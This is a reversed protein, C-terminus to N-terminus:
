PATSPRRETLEIRTGWPDSFFVSKIRLEPIATPASEFTLAKVAATYNELNEVEFGMHDVARGKTPGATTGATIFDLRIGLTPYGFRESYWRRALTADPVLFHIHDAAVEAGIGPDGVLELLVNDPAMLQASNRSAQRSHYGARGARALVGDLDRVRVGIDRIVSGETGGSPDGTEIWVYAEQLRVGDLAGQRAPKAGLVDIWIRRVSDPDKAILHIHGLSVGEANPGPPQAGVIGAAALYLAGCGLVIYMPNSHRSPFSRQAFMNMKGISSRQRDGVSAGGRVLGARSGWRPM